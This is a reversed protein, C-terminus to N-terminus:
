GDPGGGTFPPADALAPYIDFESDLGTVTLPLLVVRTRAVLCLSSGVAAAAHKVNVLVTLGAASLFSVGALDVTVRPAADRLHSLLVHQLLPSTSMDVEGSVALVVADPPVPRSTVTLLQVRPDPLAASVAASVSPLVANM